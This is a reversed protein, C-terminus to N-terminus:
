KGREYLQNIIEREYHKSNKINSLATTRHHGLRTSLHYLDIGDKFCLYYFTQKAIQVYRNKKGKSILIEEPIDYHLSVLRLWKKYNTVTTM